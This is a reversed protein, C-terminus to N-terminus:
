RPVQTRPLSGLSFTAAWTMSIAGPSSMSGSVSTASLSASTCAPM